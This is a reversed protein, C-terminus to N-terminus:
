SKLIGAQEVIHQEVGRGLSQHLDGGVGLMKAGFDPEKGNQMGPALVQLSMRVNVADNRPASNSEISLTPDRPAVLEKERYANERSEIAPKKHGSESVGVVLFFELKVASEFFEAFGLYEAPEQLLQALYFPDDIGLAGETAGFLDHIIETAVGVFHGDGVMAEQFLFIALDSKAPLVIAPALISGGIDHARHRQCGVLEDATEEEM